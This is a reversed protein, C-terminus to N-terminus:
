NKFKRRIGVLGILGSGLLWIAGPIPVSSINKLKLIHSPDEDFLDMQVIGLNPVVYMNWPGDPDSFGLQYASYTGLGYPINVIFDDDLIEVTNNTSHSWTTGVADIQFFLTEGVESDWEFIQTETSRFYGDGFHFNQQSGIMVEESVYFHMDIMAEGGPYENAEYIWDQGVQMPWILAAESSPAFWFVICIMGLCWFLSLKKM